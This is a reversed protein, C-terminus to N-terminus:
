VPRGPFLLVQLPDAYQALVPRAGDLALLRPNDALPHKSAGVKFVLGGGNSVQYPTMGKIDTKVLGGHFLTFTLIDSPPAPVSAGREGELTCIMDNEADRLITSF